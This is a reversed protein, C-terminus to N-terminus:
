LMVWPRLSSGVKWCLEVPLSLFALLNLPSPALLQLFSYSHRPARLAFFLHLRDWLSPSAISLSIVAIGRQTLDQSVSSQRSFQYLDTTLLQISPFNLEKREALEKSWNVSMWVSGSSLKALTYECWPRCRFTAINEGVYWIQANRYTMTVHRTFMWM